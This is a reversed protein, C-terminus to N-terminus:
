EEESNQRTERHIIQRLRRSDAIFEWDLRVPKGFTDVYDAQGYFYLVTEDTVLNRADGFTFPELYTVTMQASEANVAIIELATDAAVFTRRAGPDKQISIGHWVHQLIGPTKGYNKLVYQIGPGTMKTPHMTPSNDYMRASQFASSVTENQIVVFLHAREADIVAQANLKAADAADQAAKVGKETDRLSERIFGLQVWFLIFQGGGVIVLCLTFFGAADKTIWAWGRDNHPKPSDTSEASASQTSPEQATNGSYQSSLRSQWGCWLVLLALLTCNGSATKTADIDASRRFSNM